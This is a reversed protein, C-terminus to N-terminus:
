EGFQWNQLTSLGSITASVLADLRLIYTAHETRDGALWKEM